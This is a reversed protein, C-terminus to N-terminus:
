RNSHRGAGILDRFAVARQWKQSRLYSFIPDNLTIEGQVVRVGSGSSTVVTRCFAAVVGEGRVENDGSEPFGFFRRFATDETVPVRAPTSIWDAEAAVIAWGNVNHAEVNRCGLIQADAVLRETLERLTPEGSQFYYEPHARAFQFGDLAPISDDDPKAM